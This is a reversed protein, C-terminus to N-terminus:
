PNTPTLLSTLSRPAAGDDLSRRTEDLSPRKKFRIQIGVQREALFDAAMKRLAAASAAGTKDVLKSFASNPNALLDTPPGIEAVVGADMVVVQDSRIVNDLRHAITFTTRDSFLREIIELVHAETHPDMAATAEDLCLVPVKKLEARALCMLQQQGLSWAASTADIVGDLGGCAKAQEELGVNRLAEWLAADNGYEGFPDLNSRVTGSFVVPEQPIVSLGRRLQELTLTSTDIGDVVISGSELNFMRYLALLLTSKGSGTRGVM